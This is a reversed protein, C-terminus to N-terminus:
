VVSKRDQYNALLPTAPSELQPKAEEALKDIAQAYTTEAIEVENLAKSRLPSQDGPEGKKPPHLYFWGASITLILVFAGAAATQWGLPFHQFFSYWGRRETRETKREAEESLAREIGAWLTPSEIYDRLQQAAVSLSQWARIEEACPPCTAAHAELAAWEALTGDEFIRDRDNCTVNM